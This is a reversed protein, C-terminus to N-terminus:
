FRVINGHLASHFFHAASHGTRVLMTHGWGRVYHQQIPDLLQQEVPDRRLNAHPVSVIVPGCRCSADMRITILDLNCREDGFQKGTPSTMRRRLAAQSVSATNQSLFLAMTPLRLTRVLVPNLGLIGKWIRQTARRSVPNWLKWM